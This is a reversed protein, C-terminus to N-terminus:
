VAGADTADETAISRLRELSEHLDSPSDPAQRLPTAASVAVSFLSLMALCLRRM